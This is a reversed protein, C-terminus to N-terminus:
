GTIWYSSAADNMVGLSNASVQPGFSSGGQNINESLRTKCTGYPQFSSVRDNWGSPMSNGTFSHTTCMTSISTTINVTAGTKNADAYFTALVYTALPTIGGRAASAEEGALVLVGGTQEEVAAVFAEDDEFCQTVETDSDFWCTETDTEESAYAPAATAISMGLVATALAVSARGVRGMRMKM